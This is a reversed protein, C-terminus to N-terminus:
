SSKEWRGSALVFLLKESEAVAQGDGDGTLLVFLVLGDRCDVLFVYQLKLLDNVKDISPDVIEPLEFVNVYLHSMAPFLLQLQDLRQVELDVPRRPTPLLPELHEIDCPCQELCLDELGLQGLLGFNLLDQDVDMALLIRSPADSDRIELLEVVIEVVVWEVFESKRRTYHDQYIGVDVGHKTEVDQVLEM